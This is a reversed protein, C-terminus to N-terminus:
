RCPSHRTTPTGTAQVRCGHVFPFINHFCARMLRCDEDGRRQQSEPGHLSRRSLRRLGNIRLTCRLFRNSRLVRRLRWGNRLTAQQRQESNVHINISRPYVTVRSGTGGRLKLVVAYVVEEIVRPRRQLRCTEIGNAERYTQVIGFPRDTHGIKTEPCIGVADPQNGNKLPGVSHSLVARVETGRRAGKDRSHDRSHLSGPSRRQRGVRLDTKVLESPGHVM